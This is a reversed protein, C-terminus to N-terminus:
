YKTSRKLYRTRLVYMLLRLLLVALIGFIFGNRFTFHDVPEPEPEVDEELRVTTFTNTSFSSIQPLNEYTVSRTQPGPGRTTTDNPNANQSGSADGPNDDEVADIGDLQILAFDYVDFEIAIPVVLDGNPQNFLEVKNEDSLEIDAGHISLEFYWGSVNRIENETIDATGGAATWIKGTETNDYPPEKVHSFTFQKKPMWKILDRPNITVRIERIEISGEDTGWFKSGSNYDYLDSFTQQRYEKGLVDDSSINFFFKKFSADNALESRRISGSVDTTPTGDEEFLPPGCSWSCKKWFNRANGDITSIITIKEEKAM